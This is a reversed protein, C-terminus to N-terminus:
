GRKGKFRQSKKEKKLVKLSEVKSEMEEEGRKKKGRNGGKGIIGLDM